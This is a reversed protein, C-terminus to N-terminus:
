PYRLRYWQHASAPSITIRNFGNSLVVPNPLSSWSPAALNSASQVTAPDPQRPWSLVVNAGSKAMRLKAATFAASSNRTDRFAMPWDRPDHRYPVPLHLVTLVGQQLSGSIDGGTILRYNIAIELTGDGDFDGALPAGDGYPQNGNAGLLRWSRAVTGDNRYAVLTPENYFPTSFVVNHRILIIEARGDGDVDTVAPRGFPQFGNGQVPWAGPFKSGDRRLVNLDAFATAIIENTGDRNLDALIVRTPTGGGLQVPWGAAPAGTSSYVQALNVGGADSYTLVIEPVDDGDLDGVAVQQFTGDLTIAPWNAATGDAKFMRLSFSAGSDGAVVLLEPKGDGDFDSPVIRGWEQFRLTSNADPITIPYNGTFMQGNIRWAYLLGRSDSLVSGLALVELTGDGDLDAFTVLAYQLNSWIPEALVVSSGDQRFVRLQNWEAAVLEDGPAAELDAVAPQMSSANDLVNTTFASGDAEFIWLLSPVPTSLYRPNVLALRMQGNSKRVPMASSYGPAQDLWRPWNTSFLDPEFYAYTQAQNTVGPTDVFLRFSYYDAQTAGSSNWTGLLGNTVQSTGGGALNIGNTSWGTSPLVGRAWQMRFRQFSTANASGRISLVAGPKFVRAVTRVPPSAPDTILAEDALSHGCLALLTLMWGLTYRPCSRVPVQRIKSARRSLALRFPRKFFYNM